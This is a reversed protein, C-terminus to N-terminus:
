LRSFEVNRQKKMKMIYDAGKLGEKRPGAWILYYLRGGRTNTILRPTSVFGFAQELRACYWELLRVESDAFKQTRQGMLDDTQHYVHQRWDPTGFFTDLSISWGKPVDGSKPMMRRIAMGMPFNIIIEIAKSAALAEITSWPVQIGFADLFIYARHKSRSFGTNLISLLAANADGAHIDMRRTDGYEQQMAQLEAVRKPDKEIFIYRDFPNKLDLAVRPSGKLYRVEEEVPDDTDASLLDGFLDGTQGTPPPPTEVPRTRVVSLSPGAFADVYIKQWYPQNKLYTTYYELARRLAELKEAAWPGVTNDQPRKAM